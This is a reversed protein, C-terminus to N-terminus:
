IYRKQVYDDLEAIFEELTKIKFGDGNDLIVKNITGPEIAKLWAVFDMESEKNNLITRDVPIEGMTQTDNGIKVTGAKVDILLGNPIKRSHFDLTKSKMPPMEPTMKPKKRKLKSSLNSM